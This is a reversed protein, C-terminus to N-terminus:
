QLKVFRETKVLAGSADEVKMIYLGEALDGVYISAESASRVLLKRGDLSQITVTVLVPSSVTIYNRAPNPYVLVRSALELQPVDSENMNTVSHSASDMCGHTNSVEVKYLGKQTVVYTQNTAGALAVGDQYWQYQDYATTTSLTNVNVQITPTALAAVTVEFTDVVMDCYDSSKVWYTGSQTVTISDTSAGTSWEYNIFGSRGGLALTGAANCVLVEPSREYVRTNFPFVVEQPVPVAQNATTLTDLHVYGTDFGCTAAPENPRAIIDIRKTNKGLIYISDNYLRFRLDAYGSVTMGSPIVATKSSWIAASDYNSIDLQYLDRTTSGLTPKDDIYLKTGDPSFAVTANGRDSASITQTPRFFVPDSIQGTAPHFKVLEVGGYDKQLGTFYQTPASTAIMSRDPSVVMHGNLMNMKGQSVVPITDIGASTIHYALYDFANAENKNKGYVHVVLWIDCNDGPIAVMPESLSRNTLVITNNPTDVDGKGADLSMDVIRYSLWPTGIGSTGVSRLAFVYYRDPEGIVPVVCVNNGAFGVSHLGNPMMVHAANFIETGNTYFLHTGTVPDSVSAGGMNALTPLPEFRYGQATGSSFDLGVKGSVWWRQNGRLYEPTKNYPVQASAWGLSMMLVILTFKLKIM